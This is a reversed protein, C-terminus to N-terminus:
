LLNFEALIENAHDKVKPKKIINIIKQNEDILFTTRITGMYEKGMFKKLQWVGFLKNLELNEDSILIFPLEKKEKFNIHSKISDKSIGIIVIGNKEILKFNDRLNEAQTTCGPTLDKPYFYIALKKGKFDSIKIEKEIGNILAKTKFDKIKTGIKMM